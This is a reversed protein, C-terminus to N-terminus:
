EGQTRRSSLTIDVVAHTPIKEPIKTCNSKAAEGALLVIEVAVSKISKGANVLTEYASPVLKAQPLIRQLVTSAELSDIDITWQSDDRLRGLLDCVLFPGEAFRTKGFYLRNIGNFLRQTLAKDAALHKWLDRDDSCTNERYLSTGDEARLLSTYCDSQNVVIGGNQEILTVKKPWLVQSFASIITIGIFLFGGAIVLGIRM